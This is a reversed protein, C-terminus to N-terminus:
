TGTGLDVDALTIGENTATLFLDRGIAVMWEAITIAAASTITLDDTVLATPATGLSAYILVVDGTGANYSGALTLAGSATIRLDQNSATAVGSTATGTATLSVIAGSITTAQTTSFNIPMEEGATTTGAIITINGAGTDFAGGLLVAGTATITLAEGSATPTGSGSTLTIAGGELTTAVATFSIASEAGSTVSIAGTGTDFAGGLAVAGSSTITFAANSAAGATTSTLSVDAGSITTAGILTIAGATTLTLNHQTTTEDATAQARITSGTITTTAPLDGVGAVTVSRGFTINAATLTTAKSFTINGNTSATFDATLNIATATLTIDGTAILTLAQGAVSLPM